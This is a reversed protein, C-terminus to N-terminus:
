SDERSQVLRILLEQGAPTLSWLNTETNASQGLPNDVYGPRLMTYALGMGFSNIIQANTCPGELLVWRLFKAAQLPINEQRCKATNVKFDPHRLISVLLDQNM